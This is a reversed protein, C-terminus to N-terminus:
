GNAHDLVLTTFPAAGKPTVNFSLGWHGVMVLAPTKRSYVGPSIESLRYEQTPMQMDLMDFSLTVDAGRVKKGNRTLELAFANPAAARNPSVLVRLEYGHDRVTTAVTGPGVKASASNEKAFAPPPPALSSLIAAAFVAGAVIMAETGVLARLLRAPREGRATDERAALLGPKNRLLNVAALPMTAALLGTKVLILQGYSTQWLAALLPLHLISAGVGTAFLVLVSVFAVNSFRPVCVILGAVRRASPLSAWLIFLGILGGLWLSGSVLHFWDLLVSLWRPATQAAHGAAGPFVLVAAAAAIAGALALLAAISRRARGPGDVWIAIWAALCFLAFCLEMDVYGRGFATARWLPLLAGISFFSRLSDVATAEELYLPLALLGFGSFVAFALSVARLSTGEVRRIMPRAILVRFVFLGIAAMVTM